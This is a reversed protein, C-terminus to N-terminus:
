AKEKRHVGIEYKLMGPQPIVRVRYGKESLKVINEKKQGTMQSVFREGVYIEAEGTPIGELAKLAKEYYIFSECKERFAPHYAGGLYGDEM